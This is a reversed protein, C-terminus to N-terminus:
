CGHRARRPRHTPLFHNGQTIHAHATRVAILTLASVAIPPIVDMLALVMPQRAILGAAVILTLLSYVPFVM